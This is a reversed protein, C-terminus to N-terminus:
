VFPEFDYFRSLLPSGNTSPYSSLILSDLSSTIFAFSFLIYYFVYEIPTTKCKLSNFNNSAYIVIIILSDNNKNYFNHIVDDVNINLFCIKKNINRVNLGLKYTMLVDLLLTGWLIPSSVLPSLDQVKTSFLMSILTCSFLYMTRPLVLKWLKFGNESFHCSSFTTPKLTMRTLSRKCFCCKFCFFHQVHISMCLVYKLYIVIHELLPLYMGLLCTM